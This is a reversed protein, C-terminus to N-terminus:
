LPANPNAIGGLCYGDDIGISQGDLLESAPYVSAAKVRVEQITGLKSCGHCDLDLLHTLCSAVDTNDQRRRHTRRNWRGLVRGVRLWGTM